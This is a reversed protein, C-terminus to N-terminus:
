CVFTHLTNVGNNVSIMFTKDTGREAVRIFNYLHGNITRRYVVTRYHRCVLVDEGFPRSIEM